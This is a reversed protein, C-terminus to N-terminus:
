NPLIEICDLWWSILESRKGLLDCDLSLGTVRHLDPRYIFSMYLKGSAIM